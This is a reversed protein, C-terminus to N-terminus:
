TELSQREVHEQTGNQGTERRFRERLEDSIRGRDGIDVGNAIGWARIEQNELRRAANSRSHESRSTGTGTIVSSIEKWMETQLRFADWQEKHSDCLDISYGHQDVHWTITHDAMVITDPTEKICKDCVKFTKTAM